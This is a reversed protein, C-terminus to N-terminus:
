SVVARARVDDFRDDPSCRDLGVRGGGWSVSPVSGYRSRSGLCLTIKKVDLHKRERWYFFDGFILREEATQTIIKQERIDAYSLNMLEEDAEQRYRTLVVYDRNPKRDSEIESLDNWLNRFNYRTKIGDVIKQLAMGKMMCLPFAIDGAPEPIRLKSFDKEIGWTEKYYLSWLALAEQQIDQGKDGKALLEKVEGPTPKQVTEHKPM